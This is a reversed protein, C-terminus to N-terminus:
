ITFPRDLAHEVEAPPLPRSFLFGQASRCGLERLLELQQITEVGEAITELELTEALSIVAAVIASDEADPGLGDVFTRDIKLIDVPFRRLFALSSYGTGFDDIALSLGLEKLRRLTSVARAADDMLDTESMELCLFRPPLGVRRLVDEVEHHLDDSALQRKSLNVHIVPAGPGHRRVWEQGQACAQNLVLLGLPVILGTEEALTMFESPPLLGRDPHDWRALAEVAIVTGTDMDITPQYNAVIRGDEIAKSLEDAMTVRAQAQARLQEDYVELRARGLEKARYMAADADRLLAEPHRADGTSLAVGGSVTVDLEAGGIRFPSREISSCVRNAIAIAHQESEVYPCLVVFEDGGLRAVTDSPRVTQTIRHASEVLLRDGADHGLNDNVTKLRDLDLFVLAVISNDRASRALALEMHDLLLARNPLGTLSDHTAQHALEAELRRQESMDRGVASITLLTGDGDLEGVVSHHVPFPEGGHAHLMMLEGEWVEGRQLTGILDEAHRAVAAPDYLDFVNVEITGRKAYGLRERAARNAYEVVGTQADVIGVMDSTSEVIRALRDRIDFAQRQGSIDMVHSAIAYPTGDPKRILKTSADVWVTEGSKHMLRREDRVVGIEGGELREFGEVAPAMDDPHILGTPYTGALEDVEYGLMRAYVENVHVIRGELNVVIQGIPSGEGLHHLLDVEDPAEDATAPVSLAAEVFETVDALSAVWGLLQAEEDLVPAVRLDVWRIAGTPRQVRGQFSLEAPPDSSERITTALRTRDDHHVVDLLHRGPHDYHSGTVEVWRDNAFTITGGPDLAAIGVPAAGALVEFDGDPGGPRILPMDVDSVNTIQMHYGSVEGHDERLATMSTHGWIDAAGARRYRLASLFSQLEGSRLLRIGIEHFYSSGPHLLRTAPRGVLEEAPYGLLETLARNARTIRNDLGLLMQPLPADDFAPDRATPEGEPDDSM